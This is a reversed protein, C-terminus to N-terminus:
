IGRGLPLIGPASPHRDWPRDFSHLCSRHLGPWRGLITISLKKKSFVVPASFLFKTLVQVRWLSKHDEFIKASSPCKEMPKVISLVVRKPIALAKKQDTVKPIRDEFSMPSVGSRMDQSSIHGSWTANKGEGVELRCFWVRRQHRPWLKWRGSQSEHRATVVPQYSWSKPLIGWDDRPVIYVYINSYIHLHMCTHICICVNIYVYAYVTYMFIEEACRWAVISGVLNTLNTAPCHKQPLRM